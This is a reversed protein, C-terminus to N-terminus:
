FKVKSVVGYFAKGQIQAIELELATPQRSGDAAAYTGAGWPSGGHVETLGTLQGFAHAYGLPVYIVGHHTLTSLTALITSEQGGGPGATSTFAGAYKGALAGSAWLSSTSDWFTKWQAPFNGFRTPVGMIFADYKALEDPTIVPFAPKPAAYMKTLVEQPLTEAIQYMTVSGGAEEVGKKVAEAMKTIHGYMSYVVIAIKPGAMEEVLATTTTPPPNPQTTATSTPDAAAVATGKTSAPKTTSGTDFNAGQKKSPFCM